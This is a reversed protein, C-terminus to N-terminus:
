PIEVRVVYETENAPAIDPAPTPGWPNPVLSLELCAPSGDSQLPAGRWPSASDRPSRPVGQLGRHVRVPIEQDPGSLPKVQLASERPRMVGDTEEVVFRLKGPATSCVVDVDRMFALKGTVAAGPAVQTPNRPTDNPEVERNPDLERPALRLTYEDSVNEYVPPAGARTYADRDQMVALLYTGAPLALQEIRLDKGPAGACYRGLPSESGSAYVWTCLAMNPLSRTTLEVVPTGSPVTVRYFDRDSREPDLRRGI